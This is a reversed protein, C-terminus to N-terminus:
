DDEDESSDDDDAGNADGDDDDSDSSDDHEGKPAKVQPAQGTRMAHMQGAISDEEPESIDDDEEILPAAEPPSVNLKVETMGDCGLYSDSKVFIQFQWSGPRPPAQFQLRVTADNGPSLDNTKGATILRNQRIDGMMVWWSPKKEAPYFPAHVDPVKGASGAWWEKKPEEADEPDNDNQELPGQGKEKELDEPAILSLKVTLTVISDPIIAPEGLVSFSKKVIKILPYQKAVSLVNEKDSDSLTRLLSDQEEQPLELLDRITQIQRKKTNFHKLISPDPFPLQLLPSQHFYLAQTVGQALDLAQLTMSMWNRSQTIQLMGGILHTSREVIVAQEEALKKDSPIIRLMHANLLLSVKQALATAADKAQGRKTKDYRDTTKEEMATKVEDALNDLAATDSKDLTVLTHFEESKALLELLPKFTFNEKMDRYFRAMTQHMIKDKTMNKANNWWQAVLTPLAIMFVATYLGLVWVSNSEEVLWKPLALGLQLAQPGDPNKHEIWRQKAEEDTLVKMAKALDVYKRAAEAQEEPSKNLVADPHLTKSLKRYASKVAAADADETLGMIEYPDWPGPEEIVTTAVKYAVLAFFIWGLVLFITKVSILPQDKTKLAAIRKRKNQCNACKCANPDRKAKAGFVKTYTMPVLVLALITLLFYNFIAGTEDYQYQAM